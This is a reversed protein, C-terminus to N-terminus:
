EYGFNHRSHCMTDLSEVYNQIVTVTVYIHLSATDTM